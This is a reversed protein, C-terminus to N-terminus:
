IYTEMKKRLIELFSRKRLKCVTIVNETMSVEFREGVSITAIADGDFSVSAKEDLQSRHVGLEIEIVADAGLVISKSNLNHANIPTLLLMKEKPDVIPGGASMNYGTSGTPTAVIIGDAYYTTLFEGNVYVNLSLISLDGTSHIVVDNLALRKNEDDPRNGKLMARKEVIFNDDFLEDIAQFIASEEVECLYGITGLNIGILPIQLSQVRTATRIFTGDGGMVLLCETDKPIDSVDWSYLQNKTSNQSLVKVRGGKEEIYAAIATSHKLNEDKYENTIVVFNRM